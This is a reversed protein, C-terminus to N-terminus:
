QPRLVVPIRVQRPHPKEGSQDETLVITATEESTAEFALEAIFPVPGTTMWDSQAQVPAQAILRGDAGVLQASFVAEFYWTGPAVGTVRIPSTVVAGPQPSTVEISAVAEPAATTEPSAQGDTAPQGPSCACLALLAILVMKNRM